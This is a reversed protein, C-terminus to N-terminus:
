ESELRKMEAEYEQYEDLIEQSPEETFQSVLIIALLSFVFGPVLEYLGTDYICYSGGGIIGGGILCTNWLIVTIFGVIMGALAGKANARKWFLSVLVLPGFAAGFGAWAYSVLKMITANGSLAMIAAVIAVIAVVLRSLWMLQSDSMEKGKKGFRKYLDNAVASSAVLLQSDATSMVAALIAAYIIGAIVTTFLAGALAIFITEDGGVLVTGTDIAWARGILGVLCACALSVVIWITAVRRSIKLDNPNKIATYRVVIHPMGFYGLGWALLSVIAILTIKEGGDYMIDTFHDPLTAATNWIATVEGWGGLTVVTAIPVVVLAIVMLMGQLMDTWCVAKFGGLFTYAVIVAAAVIIALNKDNESLGLIITFVKGAGVFGSAVYVVFFVLIIIASVDRLLGKEDKYRNTFFSSLTLSNQSVETYVRLRKAIILWAGYSGIALGIGIWAEGLGLAYVAGPLGMLLWSSMDSAQASLATVYPNLSRGGLIYDSLTTSKHYFYYGVAIVIVFYAIVVALITYNIM